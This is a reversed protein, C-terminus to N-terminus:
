IGAREPRPNRHDHDDWIFDLRNCVNVVGSISASLREAREIDGRCELRGLLTVVGEHVSVVVDQDFLACEVDAKIAPDGRRFSALLDRRSIVGVLVDADLVFLRRVGSEAMRAAAQATSATASITRVPATMLDAATLGRSKSWDVRAKAGGFWRPRPEGSGHRLRALLDAESVVGIPAGHKDLVPVASIRNYALLEDIQKYSTSAIVSIPSKTMLQLVTDNM